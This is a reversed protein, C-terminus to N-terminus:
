LEYGETFFGFRGFATNDGEVSARTVLTDDEFAVKRNHVFATKGNRTPVAFDKEFGFKHKVMRFHNLVAYVKEYDELTFEGFDFNSYDETDIKVKKLCDKYIKSFLQKDHPRKSFDNWRSSQDPNIMHAFTKQDYTITKKNETETYKEDIDITIKVPIGEKKM